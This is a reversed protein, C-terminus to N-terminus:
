KSNNGKIKMNAIKLPDFRLVKKDEIEIEGGFFMAEAKKLYIEDKEGKENVKKELFTSITNLSTSKGSGRPYFLLIYECIALEAIIETRDNFCNSCRIEM